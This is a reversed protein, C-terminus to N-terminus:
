NERSRCRMGNEQQGESPCFRACSPFSPLCPLCTGNAAPAGFRGRLDEPVSLRKAPLEQLLLKQGGSSHFEEGPHCDAVREEKELPSTVVSQIPVLTHVVVAPALPQALIPGKRNSM